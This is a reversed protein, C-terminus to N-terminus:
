QQSFDAEFNLNEGSTGTAVVKVHWITTSTKTGQIFGNTLRNTRLAPNIPANLYTLAKIVSLEDVGNYIFSTQVSSPIEFYLSKDEYAGVAEPCHEYIHTFKFVTNTGTVVTVGHASTDITKNAQWSFVDAPPTCVLTKKTCATWLLAVLIFSFIRM